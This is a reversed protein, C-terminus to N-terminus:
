SAITEPAPQIDDDAIRVVQTVDDVLCGMTRDGVHVVITRADADRERPELDFLTRLNIIPIISGRLNSVGECYSPVQPTRTIREPIVIERIREIPFAYAQDALHFGVWQTTNHRQTEAM